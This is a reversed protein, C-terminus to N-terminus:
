VDELHGVGLQVQSAVVVAVVVVLGVGVDQARDLLGVPSQAPRASTVDCSAPRAPPAQGLRGGRGPGGRRRSQPLPVPEDRQRILPEELLLLLPETPSSSSSSHIVFIRVQLHSAQHM